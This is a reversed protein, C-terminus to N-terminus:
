KQDSEKRYVLRSSIRVTHLLVSCGDGTGCCLLDILVFIAFVVKVNLGFTGDM